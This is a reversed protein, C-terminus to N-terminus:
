NPTKKNAQAQEIAVARQSVVVERGAQENIQKIGELFRQNDREAEVEAEALQAEMSAIMAQRQIPTLVVCWHRAHLKYYDRGSALARVKLLKVLALTDFWDQSPVELKLGDGCDAQRTARNQLAMGWHPEFWGVDRPEQTFIPTAGVQRIYEQVDPDKSETIESMRSALDAEVDNALDKCVQHGKWLHSRESLWIWTDM